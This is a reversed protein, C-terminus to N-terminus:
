VLIFFFGRRGGVGSGEEDALRDKKEELDLM